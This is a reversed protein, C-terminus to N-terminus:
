ACSSAPETDAPQHPSPCQGHASPSVFKFFFFAGPPARCLRSPLTDCSSSFHLILPTPPSPTTLIEIWSRVHARTRSVSPSSAVAASAAAATVPGCPVTLRKRFTLEHHTTNPLQSLPHATVKKYVKRFGGARKGGDRTRFALTSSLERGPNPAVCNRAAGPPLKHLRLYSHLQTRRPDQQSPYLCVRSAWCAGLTNLWSRRTRAWWFFRGQMLACVVMDLTNQVAASGLACPRGKREEGTRARVKTSGEGIKVACM